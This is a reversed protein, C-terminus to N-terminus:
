KKQWAGSENQHYWGAPANSIWREAFVDRIQPEWEPKGNAQAIERYLASRDANEDAVLKRLQNRQPLAVLGLDRVELLGNATMGIAGSAYFPLLKEHRERMSAQLTRVAPTDADFDPAAHAAPILRSLALMWLPAEADLASRPEPAPSETPSAAPPKDGYIDQVFKDAVQEAVASPFYVNITVCAALVLLALMGGAPRTIPHLRHNM